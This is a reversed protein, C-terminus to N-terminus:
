PRARAKGNEHPSEAKRAALCPQGATGRFVPRLRSLRTPVTSATDLDPRSKRKGKLRPSSAAGKQGPGSRARGHGEWRAAREGDDHEAEDGTARATAAM